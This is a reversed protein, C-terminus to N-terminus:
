SCKGSTLSFWGLFMDYFLYFPFTMKCLYVWWQIKHGTDMEVILEGQEYDAVKAFNELTM